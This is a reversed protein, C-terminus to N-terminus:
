ITVPVGLTRLFERYDELLTPGLIRAVRKQAEISYGFIEVFTVRLLALLGEDTAFARAEEVYGAITRALRFDSESGSAILSNFWRGFERDLFIHSYLEQDEPDDGDARLHAELLPQIQPFRLALRRCFAESEGEM